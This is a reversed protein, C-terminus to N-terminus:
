LHNYNHIIYIYIYIHTYTHTYIYIYIYIYITLHKFVYIKEPHLPIKIDAAEQIICYLYLKVPKVGDAVHLYMSKFCISQSITYIFSINYTVYMFM